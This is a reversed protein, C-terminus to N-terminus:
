GTKSHDTAPSEGSEMAAAGMAELAGLARDASRRFANYPFLVVLAIVLGFATTYLAESIGVAMTAPDAVREASGLLGFSKIIGTVTGLIGLMPAATITTSLFPLFRELRPRVTEGALMVASEGVSGGRGGAEILTSVFVGLIGDGDRRALSREDNRRLASALAAIREPKMSKRLSAFFIAREFCLGIAVVSLVSLPWAVWGTARFMEVAQEITGAM